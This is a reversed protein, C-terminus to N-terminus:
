TELRARLEALLGTCAADCLDFVREFGDPGGSYPDPVEADPPSAPDFARLLEIRALPVDGPLTQALRHLEHLNQRDMAVVYDFRSLDGARFRRARGEVALGRRRIEAAARSDPPEGENWGSTGASDIEVREGLGSERVRHRLIAEATPSRCINGLCVFCVTLTPGRRSM